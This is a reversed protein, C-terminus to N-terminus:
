GHAHHQQLLPNSIIYLTLMRTYSVISQAIPVCYELLHVKFAAKGLDRRVDSYHMNLSEIIVILYLRQLRYERLTTNWTTIM